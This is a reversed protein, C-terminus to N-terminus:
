KLIVISYPPLTVKEGDLTVETGDTSLYGRIGEYGYIDKSVTIKKEEQSINYLMSIKSGNYQKVIACIDKDTIDEMYAAEGRGIEPNENRIRIIQKVFNYISLPDKQQEDLPPFEHEVTEMAEPGKTMGEQNKTSWYMPARKNEDIGSGSMGLEEGYYLFASGTTFLNMAWAMKIKTADYSLFGATRGLDHNSLFPANIADKSYENFLEQELIMKEGFSKATNNGVGKVTKVIHGDQDAFSFDFLSDIGSKYYEAYVSIGEWVEGVLYNDKNKGKVYDTFWSLVEINKEPVGSYYEKAADLRFGGVGLNLWFDAIKEIEKRLPKSALNLDPMQDWFVGEYKWGDTGEVDYYTSKEENKKFNYYGYYECEKASPKQNKKLSKLYDCAEQFWKNQTSTHNFVLDMIVKINRKNCEEILRKFDELTGYEKDINYYDIVDYKHYTTSPMIPSLWIGNVGLDTDTNDDGDNLYDLKSILGNIDGIGDGNSDCFSYLFVQYYTRYNDDIVNLDQKYQYKVEKAEQTGVPEQTQNKPQSCGGLLVISMTFATLTKGLRRIDIKM